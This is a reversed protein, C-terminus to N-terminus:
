NWLLADMSRLHAALLGLRHELRDFKVKTWCHLVATLMDAAEWLALRAPSVVRTTRYSELFSACLRDLAAMRGAFGDRTSHEMAGAKLARLGVDKVTVRFLAVDLAPEARCFGDFDIFGLAEDDLLVQAPRFSGHTPVSADEPWHTGAVELYAAVVEAGEAVRPVWPELRSIVKKIEALQQDWSVRPGADVETNHLEALGRGTSRMNKDLEGIAAPTGAKFARRLLEKLTVDGKVPGQILVNRDALFALPEAISVVSSQRLSSNWLGTMGRYANAGKAGRYTKAVVRDPWVSAAELTGQPFELQYSVTCRSGPKYRMVKPECSELQFDSYSSGNKIADELLSRAQGPDTLAPLSALRTEPPHKQLILRLEPIYCVWAGDRFSQFGSGPGDIRRDAPVVEGLLDIRRESKTSRDAVLLQYHATWTDDKIRVRKVECGILRLEGSSFERVSHRLASEVRVPNALAVLWDPKGGLQRLSGQLIRAQARDMARLLPKLM